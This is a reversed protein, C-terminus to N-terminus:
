PLGVVDTLGPRDGGDIAAATVGQLAAAVLEQMGLGVPGRDVVLAVRVALGALAPEHVLEVVVVRLSAQQGGVDM